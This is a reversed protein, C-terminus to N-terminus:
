RDGSPKFAGDRWAAVPDKPPQPPQATARPRTATRRRRVRSASSQTPPKPRVEPGRTSGPPSPRRATTATRPQTAAEPTALAVNSRGAEGVVVFPAWIQPHAAIPDDKSGILDVVALRLAEARGLTPDDALRRVAATTLKVAAASQVPWHSVLLSRAGAYLFSRALGSLAESGPAAGAATNCASLVVWDADLNLAAVESATLLGDDSASGEKPPTLVLAPEALGTIEGTVLGHTAFHLVSYAALGNDTNLAKLSAETAEAGILLRPEIPKGRSTPRSGLTAAVECIEEATDPLPTLRRVSAVEAAGGRVVVASANNGASLGAVRMPQARVAKCDAIDFARFDDATAGVLLPNGIGLYTPSRATKHTTASRLIRLSGLSPVVSVANSKALWAWEQMPAGDAPAESLLVHFPLTALRAEPVVIIHRGAIVDALPAIIESYLAHATAADFPLVGRDDPMRNLAELCKLPKVDGVWEAQDLGCRLAHVRQAVTQYKVDLKRWIFRDRTVAFVHLHNKQPAYQLLVEDDRLVQQVDAVTVPNPNSLAAFEPFTRALESDAAELNATLADLRERLVTEAARDRQATPRLASKLLKADIAKWAKALDQWQRILAGLRADGAAFRVGIQAISHAADTQAARQVIEFAERAYADAKEPQVGRLRDLVYLAGTFASDGGRARTGGEPDLRLRELRTMEARVAQRMHGLAEDYRRLGLKFGALSRMPAIIDDHEPGVTTTIIRVARELAELAPKGKKMFIRLDGLNGLIVGLGYYDKGFTAEEAALARMLLKEAREYNGRKQEELALNNLVKSIEPHNAPYAASLSSLAEEYLKLANESGASRELGAYNDLLVGIRPDSNPLKARYTALAQEFLPRAETFRGQQRFLNALNARGLATTLHDSGLKDEFIALANRQLKEAEAFRGLSNLVYGLNDMIVGANIGKAGETALQIELAKKYAAIADDFRGLMRLVGGIDTLLLLRRRDLPELLREYTVQALEYQALADAPKGGRRLLQGLRRRFVGVALTDPTGDKALSKVIHRYLSIANDFQGAQVYARSLRSAANEFEATEAGFIQAVIRFARFFYVIADKPRHEAMLIQGIHRANVATFGNKEGFVSTAMALTELAFERAKVYARADLHRQLTTWRARIEAEIREREADPLPAKAELPPLGNTAAASKESAGQDAEQAGVAGAAACVALAALVLVAGFPGARVAGSREGL